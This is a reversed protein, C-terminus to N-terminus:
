DKKDISNDLLQALEFLSAVLDTGSPLQHGENVRESFHSLLSILEPNESKKQMYHITEMSNLKPNLENRQNLYDRLLISAARRACVRARGELGAALSIQANRLEVRFQSEYSPELRYM